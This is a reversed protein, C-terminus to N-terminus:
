CGRGSRRSGPGTSRSAHAPLAWLPDGRRPGRRSGPLHNESRCARGLAAECVERRDATAGGGDPGGAPPRGEGAGPVARAVSCPRRRSQGPARAM